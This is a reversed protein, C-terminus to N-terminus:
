WIDRIKKKNKKTKKPLIIKFIGDNYIYMYQTWTIYLTVRFLTIGDLLKNNFEYKLFRVTSNYIKYTRLM